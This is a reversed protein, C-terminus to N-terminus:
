LVNVGEKLPIKHGCESVAAAEKPITAFLDCSPEEFVNALMM